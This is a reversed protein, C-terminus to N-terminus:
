RKKKKVNYGKDKLKSSIDTAKKIKELVKNGNSGKSNCKELMANYYADSEVLLGVAKEELDNAMAVNDLAEEISNIGNTKMYPYLSNMEVLLDDGVKIVTVMEATVVIEEDVEEISELCSRIAGETLTGETNANLDASAAEVLLSYPDKIFPM